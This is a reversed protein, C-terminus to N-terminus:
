NILAGGFHIIIRKGNWKEPVTVEKAYFMAPIFDKYEVGSLRSEPCFPVTIENAFLGKAMTGKSASKWTQRMEGAPAIEPIDMGSEGLDFEYTWTGNLNLWENCVFQMRPYEPRPIEQVM